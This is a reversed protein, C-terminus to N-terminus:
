PQNTAAVAIPFRDVIRRVAKEVDKPRAAVATVKIAAGTWLLERTRADYARVRVSREDNTVDDEFSGAVPVSGYATQVRTVSASGTRSRAKAQGEIEILLDASNTPEERYGRVIFHVNATDTATQALKAVRENDKANEPVIVPLVAFSHFQSFDAEPKPEIIVRATECGIVAAGLCVFTALKLKNWLTSPKVRHFTKRGEENKKSCYSAM